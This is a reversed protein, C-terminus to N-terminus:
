GFAVLWCQPCSRALPCAVAHCWCEPTWSWEISDQAQGCKTKKGGEECRSQRLLLRYAPKPTLSPKARTASSLSTPSPQTDPTPTPVTPITLRWCEGGVGWVKVEGCWQPLQQVVRVQQRGLLEDVNVHLPRLEPGVVAAAPQQRYIDWWPIFKGETRHEFATTPRHAREEGQAQARPKRGGHKRVKAVLSSTSLASLMYTDSRCHIM